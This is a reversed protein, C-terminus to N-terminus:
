VIFACGENEQLLLRMARLVEATDTNESMMVEDFAQEAHQNWHWTDEFAEIQAPSKEGSLARFLV